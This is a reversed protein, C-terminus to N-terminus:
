ARRRAGARMLAITQDILAPVADLRRVIDDYDAVTAAPMLAITRPVDQQVGELQNIPM